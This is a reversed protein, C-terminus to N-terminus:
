SIKKNCIGNLPEHSLLAPIVSYPMLIEFKKRYFPSNAAVYRVLHQAKHLQMAELESRPLAEVPDYYKSM